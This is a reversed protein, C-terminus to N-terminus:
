GVGVKSSPSAALSLCTTATSRWSAAAAPAPGAPGRRAPAWASGGCRRWTLPGSTTTTGRSRGRTGFGGLCCSGAAISCCATGVGRAPGAGFPCSSGAGTPLASGGCTAASHAPSSRTPARARGSSQSGPPAARESCASERGRAVADAGGRPPICPHIIAPGCGGGLRDWERGLGASRYHRFKEQNLSTFEGGFVYLHHKTAVAQHSSRPLPGKPSVVKRWTAKDTNFVFLDAYVHTKDRDSDYWEGGFLVLENEKQLPPPFPNPM